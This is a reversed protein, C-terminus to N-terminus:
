SSDKSVPNIKLTYRNKGNAKSEYLAQDSLAFAEEFSMPERWISVGLSCGVVLSFDLYIIPRNVREIIREAVHKVADTNLDRSGLLIVFEDGGIRAVMEYDRVMFKLRRAIERLVFDGATHGYVDNVHKFGDLDISFVYFQANHGSVQSLYGDFGARNVLGTLSDTHAALELDGITKKNLQLKDFLEYLTDSLIKIENISQSRPLAVAEGTRVQDLVSTLVVIPKSVFNSILRSLLIFFAALVITIIFIIAQLKRVSQYALDEPQRVYIRWDPGRYDLYGDAIAMEEIYEPRDIIFPTGIRNDPGLLVTHDSTSVVFMEIGLSTNRQTLVTSQMDHAWEWNLHAAIIGITHGTDDTLPISIDVFKMPEGSPNPLLGQLRVDDYVDGFFLGQIGSKFVPKESIDVDRLIGDASAIVVGKSDTVGIWTFYPFGTKLADLQREIEFPNELTKLSPLSSLMVLKRYHSWMFEDMKNAMHQAIDGAVMTVNERIAKSSYHSIVLGLAGSLVLVIVSIWLTIYTSFKYSKKM